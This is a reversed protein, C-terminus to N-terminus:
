EYLTSFKSDLYAIFPKSSLGDGTVNEVLEATDYLAGQKHINTDMWDMVESADGHRIQEKWGPIQETMEDAVQASVINGLAYTPFYGFMGLGWHIDQLPGVSDNEIEIGLYKEYLENWVVPIESVEIEGEFLGIEIEFRIIIHMNYSIEDSIVRIPVSKVQNVARAFELSDVDGFIGHTVDNVLPLCYEMFEPSRGILNETFRAQSESIIVSQKTGIPSYWWDENTNRRYLSHGAEHLFSICSRFLNDEKYNLVIRIDDYAGCTLPHVGEGIRGFAEDSSLDYGIFSALKKVIEIQDHKKVTRNLFDTRNGASATRYKEIKQPLHSKVEEFVSSIYTTRMGHDLNEISVDYLRDTDVIELLHEALECYVSFLKVLEPEFIAWDQKEFARERARNAIATQKVLRGVVEDPVKTIKEHAIRILYVNRKQVPTLSQYIDDKELDDLLKGVGRSRLKRNVMQALLAIQDARQSTAGSPLITHRDWSLVKSISRLMAVERYIQMLRSYSDM